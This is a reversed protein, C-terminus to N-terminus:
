RIRRAIGSRKLLEDGSFPNQTKQIKKTSQMRNYNWCWYEFARMGHSWEDHIPVENSQNILADSKDPYRYNLICNRFGEAKKGIYLGKVRAHTNRIQESISPIKSTRVHIGSKRLVSIPSEGTTLERAKGAIDGTHLEAVKYHKSNIVQIYHQISANTAEYYDIVRTEGKNPQIWVIATPDNVGFDWTIHLPLNEDYELDIFQTVDWEAYVTGRPRTFKAMYEQRFSDKDMEAKSKDIEQKDIYPNDYSTFHFSKYDSDIEEKQYLGYFHNMGNPTSVFWAPAKNDVFIPRMATWVNNWDKFFAVEDFIIFDVTTGRLSDPNDAGKLTIRSGNAGSVCSLEQQNYTPKFASPIIDKLMEWAILKSQKYTPSVYWINAKQKRSAEYVAKTISLVTKGSRRGVNIVKFRHEDDWVTSQWKSLNIQPM